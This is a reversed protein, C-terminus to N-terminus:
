SGNTAQYHQRGIKLVNSEFSHKAILFFVFMVSSMIISPMPGNPQEHTVLTTLIVLSQSFCMITFFGLLATWIMRM